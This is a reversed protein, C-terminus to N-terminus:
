TEEIKSGEIVVKTVTSGMFYFLGSWYKNLDYVISSCNQLLNNTEHWISPM